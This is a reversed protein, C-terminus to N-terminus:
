VRGKVGYVVIHFMHRLYLNLGKTQNSCSSFIICISVLSWFYLASLILRDLECLAIGILNTKLSIKSQIIDYSLMEPQHRLDRGTQDFM